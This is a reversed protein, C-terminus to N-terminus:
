VYIVNGFAAKLYFNNEFDVRSINEHIKGFSERFARAM